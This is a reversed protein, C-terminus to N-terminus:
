GGALDIRVRLVGGTLGGQPGSNVWNEIAIGHCGPLAEARYAAVIANTMLVADRLKQHATEEIEAAPPIIVEDGSSDVVPCCRVIEVAVVAGRLVLCAVPALVEAAVNGETGYTREVHVTLQQCDWSPPGDAIYRRDPLPEGAAAFHDVVADFVAAALDFLRDPPPPM